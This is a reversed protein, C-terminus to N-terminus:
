IAAGHPLHSTMLSSASAPQQQQQLTMGPFVSGSLSSFGRRPATDKDYQWMRFYCVHPNTDLETSILFFLGQIMEVVSCGLVPIEEM